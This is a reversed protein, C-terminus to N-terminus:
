AFMDSSMVKGLATVAFALGKDAIEQMKTEAETMEPEPEEPEPVGLGLRDILIAAVVRKTHYLDLGEVFRVEKWLLKKSTKKRPDLQYSLELECMFGNAFKDWSFHYTYDGQKALQELRNIPDEETLHIHMEAINKARESQTVYPDSM